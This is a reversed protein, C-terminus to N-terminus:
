HRCEITDSAITKGYRPIQGEVNPMASIFEWTLNHDGLTLKLLGYNVTTGDDPKGGGTGVILEKVGKAPNTAEKGDRDLPAIDTVLQHAHGTIVLSANLDFVKQWLEKLGSAHMTWENPYRDAVFPYHWIAVVCKSSSPHSQMQVKVEDLYTFQGQQREYGHGHHLGDNDGHAALISDLFFVRWSGFDKYYYVENGGGPANFYTLAGTPNPNTHEFTLYRSQCGGQGIPANFCEELDTPENPNGNRPYYYDHNGVTPYTRSRWKGWYPDYCKMFNEYIGSVGRSGDPREDAYVNDGATFVYTDPRINGPRDPDALLDNLLKTTAQVGQVWNASCDAIDGAGILVPDALATPPLTLLSGSLFTFLVATGLVVRMRTM